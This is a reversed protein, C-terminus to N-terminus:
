GASMTPKKVPQKCFDELQSVSMSKYMSKSSGKLKSKSIKGKKAALAICAAAKQNKSFPM